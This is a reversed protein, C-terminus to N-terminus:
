LGSRIKELFKKAHPVMDTFNNLKDCPYDQCYACNQLKRSRSCSRIQCVSCHGILRKDSACGDCNIDEPKMVLRYKEAWLKAVGAKEDYDGSETAIFAPCESCDIGCYATLRDM